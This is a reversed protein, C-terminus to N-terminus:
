DFESRVPGRSSRGRAALAVSPDIVANRKGGPLEVDADAATSMTSCTSSSSPARRLQRTYRRRRSLRRTAHRQGDRVIRCSRHNDSVSSVACSGCRSCPCARRIRSLPSLLSAKGAHLRFSDNASQMSGSFTAPHCWRGGLVAFRRHPHSCGRSLAARILRKWSFLQGQLVAARVRDITSSATATTQRLIWSVGREGAGGALPPPLYFGFLKLARRRPPATLSHSSLQSLPRIGDPRLVLNKYPSRSIARSATAIASSAIHQSMGQQIERLRDPLTKKM